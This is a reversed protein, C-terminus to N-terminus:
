YLVILDPLSKLLVMLISSRVEAWWIQEVLGASYAWEPHFPPRLGAICSPASPLAPVSYM